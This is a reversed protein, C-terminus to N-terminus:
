ARRHSVPSPYPGAGDRSNARSRTILLALPRTILLRRERDGRSPPSPTHLRFGHGRPRRSSPSSAPPWPRLVRGHRPSPSAPATWGRQHDQGQPPTSPPDQYGCRGRSGVSRGAIGRFAGVRVHDNNENYKRWKSSYGKPPYLQPQGSQNRPKGLATPIGLPLDFTPRDCQGPCLLPAKRLARHM